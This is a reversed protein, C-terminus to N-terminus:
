ETLQPHIIHYLHIGIESWNKTCEHISNLNRMLDDVVIVNKCEKHMEFIEVLKAGKNEDFYIRERNYIGIQNLHTRTIELLDPHRATLFIFHCGQAVANEIFQRCNQTDLAIPVASLILQKWYVLAKKEAAHYCGTELYRLNIEDKWWKKSLNAYTLVTEDIDLVVLSHPIIHIQSFSQIPNIM